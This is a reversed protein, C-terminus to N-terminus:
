FNYAAIVRFYKADSKNGKYDMNEFRVFLSTDINFRQKFHLYYADFEDGRSDNTRTHTLNLALESEGWSTVPFDYTSKLM